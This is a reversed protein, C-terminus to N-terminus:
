LAVKRMADRVWLELWYFSATANMTGGAAGASRMLKLHLTEDPACGTMTIDSMTAYTIASAAGNATSTVTNAASTANFAADDTEGTATCVTQLSYIVTGTTPTAMWAIVADVQGGDWTKSLHDTIQASYTSDGPFNLVGKAVNTGQIASAVAAGSTPLDWVSGATTGSVGAAPFFRKRIVTLINGTAESSWTKNWFTAPQQTTVYTAQSAAGYEFCVWGNSTSDIWCNHQGTTAGAATAAGETLGLVGLASTGAVFGGPCTLQGSIATCGTSVLGGAGNAAQVTGSAGPATAYTAGGTNGDGQIAWTNASQCLYFRQGSTADTDMYLDGTNCTAPLSTSNPVNLSSRVALNAMTAGTAFVLPGQGVADTVITRLEDSTDIATASLGGGGSGSGAGSMTAASAVSVLLGWVIVVALARFLRNM